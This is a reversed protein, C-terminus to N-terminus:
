FLVKLADKKRQDGAPWWLALLRDRGSNVIRVPVGEEVRDRWKSVWRPDLCGNRLRQILEDEDMIAEPLHELADVMSIMVRELNGSEAADQIEEITWSDEIGFPGSKLRILQEIHGYCGLARAIDAGLQRVYMGKSCEVELEVRPWDYRQLELRYVRVRRYPREVHIGERSLKYLRKGEIKAASYAPIQQSIEGEFGKLVELIRECPVPPGEYYRVAKGTCDLTDTEADLRLIFRYVKDGELFQDALRTARNILIVLVGEAFPDLTGGHGAKRAKVLRKIKEVVAFSTMRAPKNVVIIGNQERDKM